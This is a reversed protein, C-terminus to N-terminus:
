RRIAGRPVRVRHKAPPCIRKPRDHFQRPVIQSSKRWDTCVRRNTRRHRNVFPTLIRRLKRYTESRGTRLVGTGRGNATKHPYRRIHDPADAKGPHPDQYGCKDRWRYETGVEITPHHAHANIYHDFHQLVMEMAEPAGIRALLIVGYPIGNGSINWLAFLSSRSSFSSGALAGASHLVKFFVSLCLRSLNLLSTKATGSRQFKGSYVM